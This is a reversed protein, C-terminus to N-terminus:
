VAKRNKLVLRVIYGLKEKFKYTRDKRRLVLIIVM